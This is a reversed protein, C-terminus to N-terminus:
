TKQKANFAYTEHPAATPEREMDKQERARDNGCREIKIRARGQIKKGEDRSFGANEM